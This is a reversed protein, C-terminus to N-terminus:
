RHKGHKREAHAKFARLQDGWFAEVEELWSRLDTFRDPLLQYVRVRADNEAPLNVVFGAERLVKLHQSAAPRSLSLTDAVDSSRLPKKGLLRIMALRTPDGLAVFTHDLSVV